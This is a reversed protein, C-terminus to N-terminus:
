LPVGEPAVKKRLSTLARRQLGKVAGPSRGVVTAVQEVTLDGVIRLLMVARQDASLQACLEEVRRRGLKDLADQEANGGPRDLVDADATPVFSRRSLRRREDVLRHHAITFVWSRFKSETGEFSALGAFVGLFVESTLDEPEPSGQLRAYAAVAPALDAYLREFAWPAGARAALLM